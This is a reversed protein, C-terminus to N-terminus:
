TAPGRCWPDSTSRRVALQRTLSANELLTVAQRAVLAVLVVGGTSLLVPHVEHDSRLGDVMIGGLCLMGALYPFLLGLASRAAPGAVLRLVAPRAPRAPPGAVWVSMWPGIVLLLYGLVWGADLLGGSSYGARVSPLTWIADCVVVVSYGLVLTAMSPGDRRGAGSGVALVLSVLLIDFIPYALGLM